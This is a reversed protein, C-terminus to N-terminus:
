QEAEIGMTRSEFGLNDGIKDGQGEWTSSTWENFITDRSVITCRSVPDFFSWAKANWMYSIFVVPTGRDDLKRLHPKSSKVFGVCWFTCLHQVDPM